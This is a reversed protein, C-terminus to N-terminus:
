FGDDEEETKKEPDAEATKSKKKRKKKGAPEIVASEAADPESVKDKGPSFFGERTEPEEVPPDDQTLTDADIFDFEEAPPKVETSDKQKPKKKFLNKFFGKLGKKEGKKKKKATNKAEAKANGQQLKALRVDPLVLHDRLYWM